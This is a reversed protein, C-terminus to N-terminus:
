FNPLVKAGMSALFIVMFLLTESGQGFESVCFFMSHIGIMEDIVQVAIGGGGGVV